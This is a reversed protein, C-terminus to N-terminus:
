QLWGSFSNAFGFAPIEEDAKFMATEEAEEKVEGALDNVVNTDESDSECPTEVTSSIAEGLVKTGAPLHSLLEDPITNSTAAVATSSDSPVDVVSESVSQPVPENVQMESVAAVSLDGDIPLEDPIEDLVFPLEDSESIPAFGDAPEENTDNSSVEKTAINVVNDVQVDVPKVDVPMSSVGKELDSVRREIEKLSIQSAMDNVARILATEILFESDPVKALVGYVDSLSKSLKLISDVDVKEVYSLLLERYSDTNVLTEVSAGTMVFLADTLTNIISKLMVQLNKGKTVADRVVSIASAVDGKEISFLLDFIAKEPTIGLTETVVSTTICDDDYFPELISLADRMGGDSAAAILRIADVDYAKGHENCVQMLYDSIVDLSITEFNFRRARSIITKPVKHEETTCMIFVVNKPPEEILKLLANWAGQSFMHVEDLIFVKYNSSSIYQAKEIIGRVDEVKNNSAADLEIVDLSSGNLIDKCQQCEGCPEMGGSECNLTRAVIRAVTTKGTGRPGNFLMANPVKKSLFMGKLQAKITDQGQVESLSKPRLENYLSM